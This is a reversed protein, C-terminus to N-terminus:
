AAAVAVNGNHDYVEAGDWRECHAIQAVHFNRTRNYRRDYGRFVGNGVRQVDIVRDTTRGDEHRYCVFVTDGVAPTYQAPTTRIPTPALTVPCSAGQRTWQATDAIMQRNHQVDAPNTIPHPAYLAQNSFARYVDDATVSQTIAAIAADAIADSEDTVPALTVPCSAGEHYQMPDSTGAYGVHAPDDHEPQVRAAREATLNVVPGAKVTRTRRKKSEAVISPHQIHAFQPGPGVAIGNSWTGMITITGDSLLSEAAKRVAVAEKVAKANGNHESDKLSMWGLYCVTDVIAQQHRADKGTLTGTFTYAHHRNYITSQATTSM